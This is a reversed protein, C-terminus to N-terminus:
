LGSGRPYQRQVKPEPHHVLDHQDQCPDQGYSFALSTLWPSGRPSSLNIVTLTDANNSKGIGNCSGTTIQLGNTLTQGDCFNIFNNNSTASAAQGDEAGLAQQGDLTSGKQLLNPNLALADNNNNQNNNNQNNNNQNNQNNNQNNNQQNNQQNNQKKQNNQSQGKGNNGNQNNQQNNNQNGKNDNNAALVLTFLAAARLIKGIAM